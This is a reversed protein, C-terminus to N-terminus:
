YCCCILVWGAQSSSFKKDIQEVVSCFNPNRQLESRTKGFGKTGNVIGQLFNHLSRLGHLQLLEFGHYLSMALAFDAEVTGM